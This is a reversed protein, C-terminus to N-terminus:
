SMTMCQSLLRAAVSHKGCDGFIPSCDTLLHCSSLLRQILRVPPMISQSIVDFLQLLFFVYIYQIAFNYVIVISTIIHQSKNIQLSLWDRSLASLSFLHNSCQRVCQDLVFDQMHRNPHMFQLMQPHVTINGLSDETHNVTTCQTLICSSRILPFFIAQIQIRVTQTMSFVLILM